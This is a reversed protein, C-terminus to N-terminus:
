KLEDPNQNPIYSLITEWVEDKGIKAITSFILLKDNDSLRLQKRCDKMKNFIENKSIKDAKTLVPIFPIKISKLFVVMQIDLPTIERRIDLLLLLVKLNKSTKLYTEIRHQWDSLEEKAVKAYGYGPLDVFYFNDNIKFFIIERTKGPTSSTKAFKKRNLLSNILSSKGVNSRGAFAIQPFNDQPYQKKNVAAIVFEASKIIIIDKM